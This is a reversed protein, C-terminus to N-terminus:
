PSPLQYSLQNYALLNIIPNTPMWLSVVPWKSVSRGLAKESELLVQTAAEATKWSPVILYDRLIM